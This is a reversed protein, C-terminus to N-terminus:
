IVPLGSAEVPAHAHPLELVLRAGHEAPAASLRGAHAVAIEATVALGHGRRRDVSRPRGLRGRFRTAAAAPEPPAAGRLLESVPAPLGPGEDRVEVRVVAPECRWSVRVAGGGHEVANAILNGVAQVLRLPQGLVTPAPQAACDLRLDAQRAGAFASWSEVCAALLDQLDVLELPGPSLAGPDGGVELDQLVLSARDLELEIAHARQPLMGRGCAAPHLALRVATLPGRLEHVARALAQSRRSRSRGLEIAAGVAGAALLWGGGALAVQLTM